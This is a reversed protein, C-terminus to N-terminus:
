GNLIIRAAEMRDGRRLASIIQREDPSLEDHEGPITPDDTLGVLWDTSTKMARALSALVDGTPDNEGTEYRSIQKQSTGVLDALREQSMKLQTRRKKIREFTSV